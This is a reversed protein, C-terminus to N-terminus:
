YDSYRIQALESNIQDLKGKNIRKRNFGIYMKNTKKEKRKVRKKQKKISSIYKPCYCFSIVIKKIHQLNLSFFFNSVLSNKRFCCSIFIESAYLRILQTLSQHWIIRVGHDCLGCVFVSLGELDMKSWINQVFRNLAEKLKKARARPIPGIPVELPDNSPTLLFGFFWNLRSFQFFILQLFWVTFFFQNSYKSFHEIQNPKQNQLLGSL